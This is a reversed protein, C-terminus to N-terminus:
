GELGRALQPPHPSVFLAHPLDQEVQQGIRALEGVLTADRQLGTAVLALTAVPHHERHRIRADAHAPLLHLLQELRKVLNIGRRRALTAPGTQPQRDRAVEALHHAARDANVALWALARRECHTQWRCHGQALFIRRTRGRGRALETGVTTWSRP